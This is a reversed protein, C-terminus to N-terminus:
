RAVEKAFGLLDVVDAPVKLREQHPWIAYPSYAPEMLGYKAGYFHFDWGVHPLLCGQPVLPFNSFGEAEHLPQPPATCCLVWM